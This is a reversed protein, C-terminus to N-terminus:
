PRETNISEVGVYHVTLHGDGVNIFNEHIGHSHGLVFSGPWGRVGM